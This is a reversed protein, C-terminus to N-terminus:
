LSLLFMKIREAIARSVNVTVANGFQKYAQSNSVVLEFTEPFGQLRAYERPTLKRVRYNTSEGYIKNAHSATCTFGENGEYCVNLESLGSKRADMRYPRINWNPQIKVNLEENPRTQKAIELVDTAVSEVMVKIGEGKNTTLTSSLGGEHIVNGNMGKGSPNLNGVNIIKPDEKVAVGNTQSCDVCMAYNPLENQNRNLFKLPASHAVDKLDNFKNLITKSKEDSIYYKEDVESELVTSLRPIYNEQQEPFFFEKDISEHVGVVFYRERNQPVGWYKSNYLTVYMKYGRKKYEAELVELYPKLGKVNEAMIVSPLSDIDNEITEDLLRMVEFFLGSRKGEFLGAQKGAVSLDQCPFGFTWVDAYPMDEYTMQTIDAQKVKPSVNHGYSAVAYKDFDWAGALRFGAQKFGIGMGGAGCFLDNVRVTKM